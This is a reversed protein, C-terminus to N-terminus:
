AQSGGGPQQPPQRDPGLGRGAMQVALGVLEGTHAWTLPQSSFQAMFAAREHDTTNGGSAHWVDDWFLVATGAPLLLGVPQAKGGGEQQQQLAELQQLGEWTRSAEVYAVPRERAAAAAAGGDVCRLARHGPLMVLCGNDATMDDLAVWLALTPSHRV